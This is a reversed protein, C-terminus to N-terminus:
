EGDAHEAKGREDRLYELLAAHSFCLVIVAGTVAGLKGETIYGVTAFVITWFAFWWPSLVYRATKDMSGGKLGM